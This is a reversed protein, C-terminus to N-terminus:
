RNRSWRDLINRYATETLAATQKVSFCDRVRRGAAAALAARLAADRSLRVVAGALADSDRPEVLLGTEGDAVVDPVGGARTAVVPVGLLMADLLSTCLGELHSSLVFLDAAALYPEVDDVFGLLRFRDGLNAQRIQAELAARLEGEGLVIFRLHAAQELALRAARVLTAHDKHDTLAAVNCVLLEGAGIGLSRRTAERDTRYTFQDPDVGSPVLFVREADVGGRLLVDRVATSIALYFCAPHLYKRRSFWNGGIPFDVRRSVVIPISSRRDVAWWAMAHARASHVHLLQVQREMAVARLRRGAWRDWEGRPADAVIEVPSDALREALRGGAPTVLSVRHGRAALARLLAEVQAQGGRWDLTTDVHLLSLSAADM